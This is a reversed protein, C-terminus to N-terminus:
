EKLLEPTIIMREDRTLFVDCDNSVAQALHEADRPELGHQILEDRLTENQSDSILPYTIFGGYPDSQDTRKPDNASL